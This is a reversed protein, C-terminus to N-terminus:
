TSLSQTIVDAASSQVAEAPDAACAPAAEIRLARLHLATPTETGIETIFRPLMDLPVPEYMQSEVRVGPPAPPADDWAAADGRECFSPLRLEGGPVLKDSTALVYVPVECREAEEVLSRTGARALLADSGIAETSLWIRDARPVNSCLAADYCVSVPIGHQALRRAMRRGDLNPRLEAVLAHPRRGARALLELALAVTDSFAALLIVEGREVDKAAHEALTARSPLRPDDDTLWAELERTLRESASTPRGDRADARGAHWARRLADMWAACTGRWAQEENWERLARELDEGARDWSWAESRERIWSAVIASTARSLEKGTAARDLACTRLREALASAASPAEPEHM